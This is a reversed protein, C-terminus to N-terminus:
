YSRGFLTYFQATQNCSPHCCKTKGVIVKKPQEFPICLSKAGMAPATLDTPDEKASDKKIKDECDGLGCFPTLIFCKKYRDTDLMPFILKENFKNYLNQHILDLMDCITKALNDTSVTIKEGTDRRVLVIQNQALERPGVEARLPVGKNRDIKKRRHKM